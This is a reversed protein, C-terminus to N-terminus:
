LLEPKKDYRQKNHFTFLDSVVICFFAILWIPWLLIGSAQVYRRHYKNYVLSGLKDKLRYVVIAAIVLGIIYTEFM